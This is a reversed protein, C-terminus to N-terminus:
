RLGNRGQLQATKAVGLVTDRQNTLKQPKIGVTDQLKEDKALPSGITKDGVDAMRM